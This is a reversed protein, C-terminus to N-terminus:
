STPIFWRFISYETDASVSMVNALIPTDIGAATADNDWPEVAGDVANSAQVDQGMVITGDTLGASVGTNRLWGYDAADFAAPTVGPVVGDVDNYDYTEFNYLPNHVLRGGRCM